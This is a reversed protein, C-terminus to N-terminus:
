SRSVGLVEALRKARRTRAVANMYGPVELGRFHKTAKKNLLNPNRLICTNILLKELARVSGLRSKSSKTFRGGTTQKAILYLVPTGKKRSQMSDVYLNLKHPQWSEKRFSSKETMGVYWPVVGKAARIAFVYCGVADSLGQLEDEVQEWFEKERSKDVSVGRVPMKFPGFPEFKSIQM